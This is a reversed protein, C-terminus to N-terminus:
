GRFGPEDWREIIYWTNPPVVVALFPDVPVPKVYDSVLAVSAVYFSVDKGFQDEIKEATLLVPYPIRDRYLRDLLSGNAVMRLGRRQYQRHYYDTLFRQPSIRNYAVESRDGVRVNFWGWFHKKAGIKAVKRDLYEEVEEQDYVPIGQEALFARLRVQVKPSKGISVGLKLSLGEYKNLFELEEDVSAELLVAKPTM